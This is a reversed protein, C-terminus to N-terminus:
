GLAAVCPLGRYAGRADLGYGVVFRDPVDFGCFDLTVDVERRAPKDLLTALRVRRAGQEELLRRGEKLTHGTDLIDDVLLVHRGAVPPIRGSIHVAGSSELSDGYSELGVFEVAPLAGVRALARILDAAPDQQKQQLIKM